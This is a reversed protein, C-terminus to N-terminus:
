AHRTQPPQNRLQEVERAVHEAHKARAEDASWQWTSVYFCECRASYRPRFRGRPQWETVSMLGHNRM